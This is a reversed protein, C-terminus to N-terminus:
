VDRRSWERKRKRRGSHFVMGIVNIDYRNFNDRLGQITQRKKKGNKEGRQMETQSTEISRHELESITTETSAIRNNSVNKMEKVTNKMKLM